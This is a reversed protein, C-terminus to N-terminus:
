NEAIVTVSPGNHQQLFNEIQLADLPHSYLFGQASNCNHEILFNRQALTEVGEATVDLNLSRGMAIIATTVAASNADDIANRVFSQDIKIRDIPFRTVYSLSSFGTGFDDIAIRVGLERIEQLQHSIEETNHILMNETIELELSSPALGSSFLASRVVAVLNKQSLQRPSLNVAMILPRGAIHELRRAQACAKHLVWEGIPVIFGSEEAIPIFQAPAFTGKEPHHWRLLCEIGIITQDRLSIQPQFVLTLQDLELVHRLAQEIEMRASISNAMSLSFIQMNCRGKNKAAYMATDANKLLATADNGDDPFVSVGVSPTVQLHHHGIHIPEAVDSVIKEAVIKIQELTEVDSLVMVFEDGGMRAVTDSSRVCASLRQAVVILLQDGMHHGLSDNIRKFHDLDVMMLAVRHNFRRAREIAITLRDQLLTRNPLSTLADHHALYRIYDDNRKRESIDYAIGLFGQLQHDPGRLATVTLQVPLRSGDKRIYTWERSETLGRKAKAVFADFGPPIIEGLEISLEEAALIVEQADHLIEPTCNGVLEESRYWLMREAAPSMAIIKGHADTAIISFPASHIISQMLRNAERLEATRMVRESADTITAVVNMGRWSPRPSLAVEIPIERGNKHLGHLERSSMPQPYPSKSYNDRMRAHRTRETQPVLIEMRQGILEGPGYGFLTELHHNTARICGQRDIMLMPLPAEELPYTLQRRQRLCQYLLATLAALGFGSSGIAIAPLFTADFM